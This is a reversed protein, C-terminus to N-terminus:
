SPFLNLQAFLYVYVRSHCPLGDNRLVGTLSTVIMLSTNLNKWSGNNNWDAVILKCDLQVVINKLNLANTEAEVIVVKNDVEVREEVVFSLRLSRLWEM